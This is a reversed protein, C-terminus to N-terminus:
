VSIQDRMDLDLKVSDFEEEELSEAEFETDIDQTGLLDMDKDPHVLEEEEGMQQELHLTHDVLNLYAYMFNSLLVQERLSRKPNALKLHSLRYIAREVHVPFRYDIMVLTSHSPPPLPFGFASDTFEIPQNARSTRKISKKLREQVEITSMAKACDTAGDVEETAPEEPILPEEASEIKHEYNKKINKLKQKIRTQVNESGSVTQEVLHLSSKSEKSARSLRKEQQLTESGESISTRRTPDIAQKEGSSSQSRKKKFLKTIVNDKVVTETEPVKTDGGRSSIGLDPNSVSRVAKRPVESTSEKKEKSWPWPKKSGKKKEPDLKSILLSSSAKKKLQKSIKLKSLQPTLVQEEKLNSTLTSRSINHTLPTVQVDLDKESATLIQHNEQPFPNSEGLVESEENIGGGTRDAPWDKGNNSVYQNNKYEAKEFPESFDEDLKTIILPETAVVPTIEHKIEKEIALSDEYSVDHTTLDFSLDPIAEKEEGEETERGHDLKKYSENRSLSEKFENIENRLLDLNENLGSRQDRNQFNREGDFTGNSRPDTQHDTPRTNNDSENQSRWNKPRSSTRPNNHDNEFDGQSGNLGHQYHREPYQQYLTNYNNRNRQNQPESSYHSQHSAKRQQSAHYNNSHQQSQQQLQQSQHQLQKAQQQSQHESHLVLYGNQGGSHWYGGSTAGLQSQQNSFLDSSSRLPVNQWNPNHNYTAGTSMSRMKMNRRDEYNPRGDSGDVVCRETKSVNRSQNMSRSNQSSVQYVNQSTSRGSSLLYYPGDIPSLPVSNNSYNLSQYKAQNKSGHNVRQKEPNAQHNISSSSPYLYPLSKNGYNQRQPYVNVRNGTQHDGIFDDSTQGSEHDRPSYPLTSGGQNGFSPTYQATPPNRQHGSSHNAATTPYQSVTQGHHLSPVQTLNSSVLSQRLDALKGAKNSQLQSGLHQVSLFNQPSNGKRYDPRRSRRLLFDDSSPLKLEQSRPTHTGTSPLVNRPSVNQSYHLKQQDLIADLTNLYLKPLQRNQSRNGDYDDTIPRESQYISKEIQQPNGLEDFAQREVDSYGMSASSLTRALTVTDTADMGALRSMAQLESTLERLSPKSFQKKQQEPLPVKDEEEQILVTSDDPDTDTVSFSLSSRKSRSKSLNRSIKQELLDDITSKIHMKFQQPNIEPHVNAPVWLLEPDLPSDESVISVPRSSRLLESSLNRDRASRAHRLIPSGSREIHDHIDETSPTELGPYYNLEAFSYRKSLGSSSIHTEGLSDDRFALSEEVGLHDLALPYSSSDINPLDPDHNMLHGISFRKLAAVM